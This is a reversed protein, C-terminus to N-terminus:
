HLSKIGSGFVKQIDGPLYQTRRFINKEEVEKKDKMELAKGIILEIGIIGCYDKRIM